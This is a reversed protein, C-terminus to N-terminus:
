ILCIICDKSESAKTADVGETFDIKNYYLM